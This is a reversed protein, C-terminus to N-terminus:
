GEGKKVVAKTKILSGESTVLGYFGPIIEKIAQATSVKVPDGERPAILTNMASIIVDVKGKPINMVANLTELRVSTKAQNDVRVRGKLLRVSLKKSCDCKVIQLLSGKSFELSGGELVSLKLKAKDALTIRDFEYFIASAEIKTKAQGPRDIFVDGELEVINITEACLSFLFGAFFLMMLFKSNRLKFAYM